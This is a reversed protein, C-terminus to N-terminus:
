RLLGLERSLSRFRDVERNVMAEFEEGFRSFPRLGNRELERAWAESAAMRRLSERWRDRAEAPLGVPGYFGRWIVWEADYGIEGITPADALPPPLREPSLAALVRIEGAEVQGLVESADGPFVKVFGGLLATMAEGGGDFPVYRVSRPRIGAAEALLLVKMHDQGGVASGGGVPVSTPDSRWAALLGELNDWPADARVAIVGYDAGVAGIWHVDEGTFAGYQGQALRLTTAPSAAAFVRPDGERQAVVHAFAVGGGAGPLNIVRMASVEGLERLTRTVMRCTLDWGGGPQAPAICVAAREGGGEGCGSVVLALLLGPVMGSPRLRGGSTEGSRGTRM